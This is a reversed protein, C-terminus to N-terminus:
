KLNQSLSSISFSAKVTRLSRIGLDIEPHDVPEYGIEELAAPYNDNFAETLTRM